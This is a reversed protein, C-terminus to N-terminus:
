ARVDKARTAPLSPSVVAVYSGFGIILDSAKSSRDSYIISHGFDVLSALLAVFILLFLAYTGTARLRTLWRKRPKHPYVRAPLLATVAAAAPAADRRNPSSPPFADVTGPALQLSFSRPFAPQGNAATATM